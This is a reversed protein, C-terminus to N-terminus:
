TIYLSWGQNTRLQHENKEGFGLEREFFQNRQTLPCLDVLAKKLQGM